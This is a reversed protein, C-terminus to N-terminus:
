LGVYLDSGSVFLAGLKPTPLYDFSPILFAGDSDFSVSVSASRISMTQQDSARRSFLPFEFGFSSTTISSQGIELTNSSGKLEVLVSGSKIIFISESVYVGRWPHRVSGLDFTCQGNSGTWPLISSSIFAMLSLSSTTAYLSGSTIVYFPEGAGSFGAPGQPGIPGRPGEAIVQVVRNAGDDFITLGSGDVSNQVIIDDEFIQVTRNPM